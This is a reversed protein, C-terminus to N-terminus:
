VQFALNELTHPSTNFLTQNTKTSDTTMWWISISHSLDTNLFSTNTQIWDDVGDLLFAANTNGLRDQILLAGNNVTGDNGNGSEDNANGNFPWWGVLGNSPVYNPVQAVNSGAFAIIALATFLLNKM